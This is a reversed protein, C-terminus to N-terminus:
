VVSLGLALEPDGDHSLGIRPIPSQEVVGIEKAPM